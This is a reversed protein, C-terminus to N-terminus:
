VNLYFDILRSISEFKSRSNIIINRMKVEIKTITFPMIIYLKNLKIIFLKIKELMIGEKNLSMELIKLEEKPRDSKGSISLLNSSKVILETLYNLLSHENMESNFPNKNEFYRAENRLLKKNRNM